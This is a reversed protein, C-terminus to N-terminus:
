RWLRRVFGGGPSKANTGEQRQIQEIRQTHQDISAREGAQWARRLECYFITNIDDVIFDLNERKIEFEEYNKFLLNILNNRHRAAISKIDKESLNSMVNNKNLNLELGTLICFTGRQNTLPEVGPIPVWKNTNEDFQEQLLKHKVQELVDDFALRYRSFEDTTKPPVVPYNGFGQEPPLNEYGIPQELEDPVNNVNLDLGQNKWNVIAM